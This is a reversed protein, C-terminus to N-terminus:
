REWDFVVWQNDSVITHVIPKVKKYGKMKAILVFKDYSSYIIKSLTESTDCIDDVVLYKGEDFMLTEYDILPINLKHSLYVGVILGGRPIAYIGSYKKNNKKCYKLFYKIAEKFMKNTFYYTHVHQKTREVITVM